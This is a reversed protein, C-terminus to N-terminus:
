PCFITATRLRTAMGPFHKGTAIIGTEQLGRIYECGYRAVM